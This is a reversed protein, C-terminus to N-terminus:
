VEMKIIANLFDTVFAKLHLTGTDAWQVLATTMDNFAGTVASSMSKAVDGFDTEVNELGQKVGNQWDQQAATLDTYGTKIILVAKNTGDQVSKTDFEFQEQSIGGQKGDVGM